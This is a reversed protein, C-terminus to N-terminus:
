VTLTCVEDEEEEQDDLLNGVGENTMVLMPRMM